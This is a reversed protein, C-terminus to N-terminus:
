RSALRFATSPRYGAALYARVAPTNAENVHLTVTPVRRLLEGTAARMGATALGAGRRHPPVWTGGVQAGQATKTGVDVKFVVEGDAEGLLVRGALVRARVRRRHEEPDPAQPDEGLDEVMMRASMEAVADLEDPRAMRLALAPGPTVQTCTYLRQDYWIRPPPSGLGRWLGDSAQRPGIVLRPSGVRALARGIAECGDADGWPVALGAAVSTGPDPQPRGLWVVASLRSADGIGWWSAGDAASIGWSQLAGLLFLNANVDQALAERLASLHAARLRLARLSRM